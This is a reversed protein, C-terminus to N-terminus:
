NYFNVLNFIESNTSVSSNHSLHYGDAEKHSAAQENMWSSVEGEQQVWASVMYKALPDCSFVTHLIAFLGLSFCAEMM